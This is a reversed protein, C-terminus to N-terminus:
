EWLTPYSWFLRCLSNFLIDCLRERWSVERYRRVKEEDRKGNPARKNSAQRKRGRKFRIGGHDETFLDVGEDEEEEEEDDDEDREHIDGASAVSNESSGASEEEHYYRYGHHQFHSVEVASRV